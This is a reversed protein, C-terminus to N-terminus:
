EIIKLMDGSEMKQANNQSLFNITLITKDSHNAFNMIKMGDVKKTIYMAM